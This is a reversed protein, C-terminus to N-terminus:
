AARPLPETRIGALFAATRGPTAISEWMATPDNFNNLFRSAIRTDQAAAAFLDVLHRPPPQLFTNTWNTVNRAASWMTTEATRCFMEDFPPGALIADAPLFACTSGLNAGQGTLPDNVVWADGVAIAYTNDDLPAWGHRVVPTVAGQLLDQPRTPGFESPAVRVCLAPAHTALVDVVARRFMAPETQYPLRTLHDMPGGPVAEFGLLHVKGAHSYFPYTFIEGAGPSIHYSVGPTEDPTIGHYLGACLRRQPGSHPSRRPDRPFVEAMSRGGSAVVMLDHAAALGRVDPLEVPGIVVAGGRAEYEDMLRPLYLRFDVGSAPQRLAADFTLPHEGGLTMRLEAIEWDPFNGDAVGLLRERERTRGFRAVFNTARGARQEAASKPAYLTTDVGSQQLRLALHLGSIGAGVIGINM